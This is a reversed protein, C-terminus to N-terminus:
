RPDRWILIPNTATTSFDTCAGDGKGTPGGSAACVVKGCNDFLYNYADPTGGTVLYMVQGKYTYQTVEAAPTQKPKKKLEEILSLSFNGGCSGSTPLVDEDTVSCGATSLALGIITLLLTFRTKM